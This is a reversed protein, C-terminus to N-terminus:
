AVLDRLPSIGRPWGLASIAIMLIVQALAGKNILLDVEVANRGTEPVLVVNGPTADVFGPLTLM